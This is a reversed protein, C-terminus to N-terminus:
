INAHFLKDSIAFLVLSLNYFAPCLQSDVVQIKAYHLVRFSFILASICM